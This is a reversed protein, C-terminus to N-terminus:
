HHLSHKGFLVLPKSFFGKPVTLRKHLAYKMEKGGERGHSCVKQKELGLTQVELRLEENEGNLQENRMEVEVVQDQLVERDALLVKSSSYSRTPLIARKTHHGENQLSLM